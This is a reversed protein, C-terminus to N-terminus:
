IAEVSEKVIGTSKPWNTKDKKLWQPGYLWKDRLKGENLEKASCGRKPLDAPNDTGRVHNWQQPKSYERIFPIRNSVFVKFDDPPRQIWALVNESDTWFHESIPKNPLADHIMNRVKIALKAGELESRPMSLKGVMNIPIVKVKSCLLQVRSHDQVPQLYVAVAFAKGSADCFYHLQYKEELSSICRPVKFVTMDQASNAWNRWKDQLPEPLVTNWGGKVEMWTDQMLIKAIVHWPTGIGLPDFVSSHMSLAIRKTIVPTNAQKLLTSYSICFTDDKEEYITGLIKSEQLSTRESEQLEELLEACNSRIKRPQFQADDFISIAIKVQERAQNASDFTMVLDDVYLNKKIRKALESHPQWNDLHFHLTAMLCFPSTNLGWPMRRFKWLFGKWDKHLKDTWLFFLKKTDEECLELQLFAKALDGVAIYKGFRIRVLVGDLRPILNPGTELCANVPYKTKEQVASGDFVVRCKTTQHDERFVGHHPMVTKTPQKNYEEWNSKEIVGMNKWEDFCAAYQALLNPDKQLKRQQGKLRSLAMQMNESPLLSEDKWPLKIIYRGDEKRKLNKQFTELVLQDAQDQTQDGQLLGNIEQEYVNRVIHSVEKELETKSSTLNNLVRICQSTVMGSVSFVSLATKRPINFDPIPGSFVNGFVTNNLVFTSTYRYSIGQYMQFHLESTEIVMADPDALPQHQKISRILSESMPPQILSGAMHPVELPYLVFPQDNKHGAALSSSKGTTM